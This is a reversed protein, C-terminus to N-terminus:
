KEQATLKVLGTMAKLGWLHCWTNVWHRNNEMYGYNCGEPLRYMLVREMGDLTEDIHDLYVTKGTTLYGQRLAEIMQAERDYPLCTGSGGDGSCTPAAKPDTGDRSNHRFWLGTSPDRTHDILFAMAAEAKRLYDATESEPVGAAKLARYLRYNATMMDAILHTFKTGKTVNSWDRNAQSYWGGYTEDWLHENCPTITKRAWDLFAQRGTREYLDLFHIALYGATYIGKYKSSTLTGKEPDHEFGSIFGDHRDDWGHEIATAIIRDAVKRYEPTPRHQDYAYIAVPTFLAFEPVYIRAWKDTPRHYKFYQIGSKADYANQVLWDLSQKAEDLLREDEPRHGLAEFMKIKNLAMFAQQQPCFNGEHPQNPPMKLSNQFIARGGLVDNKWIYADDLAMMERLRTGCWDASHRMTAPTTETAFTSVAFGLFLMAFGCPVLLRRM